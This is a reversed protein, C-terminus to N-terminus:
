LHDGPWLDKWWFSFSCPWEFVLSADAGLSVSLAQSSRMGECCGRRAERGERVGESFPRNAWSGAWWLPSCHSCSGELDSVSGPSVAPFLRLWLPATQKVGGRGREPASQLFASASLAFRVWEAASEWRAASAPSSQRRRRWWWWLLSWDPFPTSPSPSSRMRRPHGAGSRSPFRARRAREAGGRFNLTKRATSQLPPPSPSFPSRPCRPLGEVWVPSSSSLHNISAASVAAAAAAAAVEAAAAVAQLLGM